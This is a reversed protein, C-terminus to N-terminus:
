HLIQFIGLQDGCTDQNISFLGNFGHGFIVEILMIIMNMLIKILKEKLFKMIDISNIYNLELIVIKKM